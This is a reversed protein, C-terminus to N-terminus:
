SASVLRLLLPLFFFSVSLFCLVSAPHVRFSWRSWCLFCLTAHRGQSASLHLRRSYSIRAFAAVFSRTETCFSMQPMQVQVSIIAHRTHTPRPPTWGTARCCPVMSATHVTACRCRARLSPGCYRYRLASIGLLPPPPLRDLLKRLRLRLKLRPVQVHRLSVNSARVHFTPRPVNSTLHHVHSLSPSVRPTTLSRSDEWAFAAPLRSSASSFIAVLEM